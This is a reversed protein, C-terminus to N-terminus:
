NAYPVHMCQSQPGTGLQLYVLSLCCDCWFRVWWLCCTSLSFRAVDGGCSCAASGWKLSCSLALYALYGKCCWELGWHLFHIGWTLLSFMWGSMMLLSSCSSCGSEWLSATRRPCRHLIVSFPLPSVTCSSFSISALDPSFQSHTRTSPPGPIPLLVRAHCTHWLQPLLSSKSWYEVTSSKGSLSSLTCCALCTSSKNKWKLSLFTWSSTLRSISQPLSVKIMRSPRSSSGPWRRESCDIKVSRREPSTSPSAVMRTVLRGEAVCCSNVHQFCRIDFCKTIQPKLSTSMSSYASLMRDPSFSISNLSCRETWGCMWDM